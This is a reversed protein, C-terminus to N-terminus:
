RAKSAKVLVGVVDEIAGVVSGWMERRVQGSMALSALAIFFMVILVLIGRQMYVQVVNKLSM